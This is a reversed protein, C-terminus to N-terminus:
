KNLNPCTPDKSVAHSWPNFGGGCVCNAAHLGLWQVVLSTRLLSKKREKNKKRSHLEAHPIKTGQGPVQDGQPPLLTKVM